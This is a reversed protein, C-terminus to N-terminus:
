PLTFNVVFPSAAAVVSEAGSTGMLRVMLWAFKRVIWQMGGLYYVVKVIAAFFIVAPLVTFIFIGIDAIDDSTVFALGSKSFHLLTSCMNSLWSFIDYGVSTKLIFLGLLFQLLIGVVVTRWPISKRKDSTAYLIVIFVILGFLSRLRDLRNSHGEQVPLALTVSVIFAVPLLVGLALRIKEPIVSVVKMIAGFVMGLPKSLVRTTVHYFMLKLSVFAWLLSLVLTDKGHLVWAGVMMGTIILFMFLHFWLRYRRYFTQPQDDPSTDTAKKEEPYTDNASVPLFSPPHSEAGTSVMPADTTNDATM